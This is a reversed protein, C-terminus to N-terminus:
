ADVTPGDLLQSWYEPKISCVYMKESPSFGNFSSAAASSYAGTNQFYLWDGVSLRPLLVSRAIVDISDCTPGFITSAFLEKDKGNELDSSEQSHLM